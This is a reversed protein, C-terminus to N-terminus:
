KTLREKNDDNPIPIGLKIKKLGLEELAMQSLDLPDEGNYKGQIILSQNLGGELWGYVKYYFLGKVASLKITLSSDYYTQRTTLETIRDQSTIM